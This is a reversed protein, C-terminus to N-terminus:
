AGFAFIGRKGNTLRVIASGSMLDANRTIVAEGRLTAGCTVPVVLTPNTDRVNYQGLCRAGGPIQVWFTSVGDSRATAQGAAADGGDFAGYVPISFLDRTAPAGVCGALAVMVCLVVPLRMRFVGKMPSRGCPTALM